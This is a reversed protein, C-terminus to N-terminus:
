FTRYYYKDRNPSCRMGQAFVKFGHTRLLLNMTTSINTIVEEYFRTGGPMEFLKGNIFEHRVAAKEELLLYAEASVNEKVQVNVM